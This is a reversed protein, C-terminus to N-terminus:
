EAGRSNSRKRQRSEARRPQLSLSTTRHAVRAHIAALTEERSTAPYNWPAAQVSTFPSVLRSAQARMTHSAAQPDTYAITAGGSGHVWFGWKEFDLQADSKAGGPLGPPDMQNQRAAFQTEFWSQPAAVSGPISGHSQAHPARDNQEDRAFRLRVQKLRNTSGNRIARQSDMEDNFYSQASVWTHGVSLDQDWPLISWDGTGNTNRFLYFNKHGWDSSVLFVTCPSPM